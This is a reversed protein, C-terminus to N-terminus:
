SPSRPIRRGPGARLEPHLSLNAGVKQCPQANMEGFGRIALLAILLAGLFFYIPNARTEADTGSCSRCCDWPASTFFGGASVSLLVSAGASDV